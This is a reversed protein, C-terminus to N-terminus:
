AARAAFRQDNIVMMRSLWSRSPLVGTPINRKAFASQGHKKKYDNDLLQISIPWNNASEKLYKQTGPAVVALVLDIVFDTGKYLYTDKDDAGVDIKKNGAVKKAIETLGDKTLPISRFPMEVIYDKGSVDEVQAVKNTKTCIPGHFGDSSVIYGYRDGNKNVFAVWANGDDLVDPEVVNNLLKRFQPRQSEPLDEFKQGKRSEPTAYKAPIKQDKGDNCFWMTGDYSRM